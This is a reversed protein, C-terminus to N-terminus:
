SMIGVTALRNSLQALLADPLYPPGGVADAVLQRLQATSRPGLIATSVLSNSLVFRVAATRVCQTEKAFVGRIVSLQELRRKLTVRDWRDSRHDDHDFSRYPGWNGSLLGYSLVSYALLSVSRSALQAAIDGISRSHMVNYPVSLVGAGEELAALASDTTSVSVGWASIMGENKLEQMLGTAQGASITWASPNHLLVVDLHSRKTRELCRHVIERLYQPEFNKRLQDDSAREIGIRISIVAQPCSRVRSAVREVMGGDNYIYATEFLEVGLELAADIVADAEAPAM